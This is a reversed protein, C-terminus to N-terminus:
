HNPLKTNQGIVKFKYYLPQFQKVSDSFAGAIILLTFLHYSYLYLCGNTIWKKKKKKKEVMDPNSPLEKGPFERTTESFYHEDEPLCLGRSLMKININVKVSFYFTVCFFFFLKIGCAFYNKKNIFFTTHYIFKCVFYM